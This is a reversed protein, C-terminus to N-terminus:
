SVKKRRSIASFGLLGSCLLWASNPLPVEAPSFEFQYYEDLNFTDEGMIADFAEQDFSIVPDAYAGCGAETKFDISARVECWAEVHIQYVATDALLTELSYNVLPMQPNDPDFPPWQQGAQPLYEDIIWEQSEWDTLRINAGWGHLSGFGYGGYIGDLNIPLYSGTPIPPAKAVVIGVYYEIMATAAADANGSTTSSSSFVETRVEVEATGVGGQTANSYGYTTEGAAQANASYYNGPEGFVV